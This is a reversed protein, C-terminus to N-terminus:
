FLFAAVFFTAGLAMLNIKGTNGGALGIVFQVLFCVLAFLLMIFNATIKM